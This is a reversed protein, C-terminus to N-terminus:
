SDVLSSALSQCYQANRTAVFGSTIPIAMQIPKAILFKLIVKARQKNLKATRDIM